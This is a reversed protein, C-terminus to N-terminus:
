LKEVKGASLRYRNGRWEITSTLASALFSYLWIWTGLPVWWIHVWGHRRFWGASEPLSLRAVRLRNAGKWSGLGLQAILTYLGTLNGHLALYASALMAGCYVLHAVLGLSWLGPRYIRTIVMQRRIWALFERPSTHDGSIVLAGPAYVIEMGADRVAASLAYDDSLSGRWREAVGLRKFAERRIAMAGGWAFRNRGPGFGGAIVANWVSRLLPWSGAPEPLHWRYGTAAGANEDELGRVLAKLWGPQVRGDSDAFALLESQPRAERVAAMLNNVKEGAGPPGDGATIVRAGSPIVGAPIDEPRRSVVILEYEPYDLAALSALNGALGEGAGKVPVIVSAPPCERPDESLRRLVWKRRGLDSVLSLVAM